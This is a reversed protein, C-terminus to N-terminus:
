TIAKFSWYFKGAYKQKGLCCKSISSDWIGTERSSHKISHYETKEGTYKNVSVVPKSQLNNIGNKINDHGRKNNEKWTTLQLRELSYGKYDDTRDCSPILNKIYGSSKWKDYLEHFLKQNFLWEKLEQKSYTPIPHNRKKSSRIQSGYITTILGNKTQSYEKVRRKDCIKCNPRVGNKCGKQKSFENLLKIQYCKTCIKSEEM